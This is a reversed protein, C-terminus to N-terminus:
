RDSPIHANELKFTEIIEVRKVVIIAPAIILILPPFILGQSAGEGYKEM